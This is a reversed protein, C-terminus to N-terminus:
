AAAAVKRTVTLQLLRLLTAVLAAEAGLTALVLPHTLPVTGTLPGYLSSALLAGAGAVGIGRFTRSDWSVAPTYVFLILAALFQMLFVDQRAIHNPLAYFLLLGVVFMLLSGVFLVRGHPRVLSFWLAQQLSLGALAGALVAIIFPVDIFTFILHPSTAGGGYFLRLALVLFAVGVAVGYLFWGRAERPKAM